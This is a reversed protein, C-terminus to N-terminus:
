ISPLFTCTARRFLTNFDIFADLYRDNLEKDKNWSTYFMMWRKLVKQLILNDQYMLAFENLKKHFSSVKRNAATYGDLFSLMMENHYEKLTYKYSQEDSM